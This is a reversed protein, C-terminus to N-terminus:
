APNLGMSWVAHWQSWRWQTAMNPKVSLHISHCPTTQICACYLLIESKLLCFVECKETVTKVTIANGLLNFSLLLSFNGWVLIFIWYSCAWSQSCSNLNLRFGVEACKRRTWSTISLDNVINEVHLQNTNQLCFIFSDKGCANIVYFKRVTM